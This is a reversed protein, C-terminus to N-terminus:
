RSSGTVEPSWHGVRVVVDKAEGAVASCLGPGLDLQWVSWSRAAEPNGYVELDLKTNGGLPILGFEQLPMSLGEGWAKIYSEKAAWCAFFASFQEASPQAKLWEVEKASFFREALELPKLNERIREVDVGVRGARTVAIATTGETHSLNFYLGSAPLEPKGNAALQFKLASPDTGLYKGLVIRLFSRSLVFQNKAGSVLFRAARERETEDLLSSRQELQNEQASLDTYWVHVEGAPLSGDLTLNARIPVASVLNSSTSSPKM